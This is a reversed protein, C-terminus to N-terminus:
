QLAVSTINLVNRQVSKYGDSINAGDIMSSVSLRALQILRAHSPQEIIVYDSMHACLNM